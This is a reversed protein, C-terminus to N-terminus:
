RRHLPVGLVSDGLHEHVAKAARGRNINRLSAYGRRAIEVESLGRRILDDKHESALPLQKLLLTYARDILDPDAVDPRGVAVTTQDPNTTTVTVNENTEQAAEDADGSFLDPWDLGLADLV